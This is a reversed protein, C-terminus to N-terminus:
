RHMSCVCIPGRALKWVVFQVVRILLILSIGVSRLQPM